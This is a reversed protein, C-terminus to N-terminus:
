TVYNKSLLNFKNRNQFNIELNKIAEKIWFNSVDCLDITCFVNIYQFFTLVKFHSKLGVFQPIIKHFFYMCVCFNICITIKKPIIRSKKNMNKQQM